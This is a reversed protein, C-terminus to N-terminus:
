DFFDFDDKEVSSVFDNINADEKTIYKEYMYLYDFYKCHNDAVINYFTEPEENQLKEYSKYNAIIANKLIENM